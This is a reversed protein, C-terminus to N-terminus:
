ARKRPTLHGYEVGLVEYEKSLFKSREIEKQKNAGKQVSFKSPPTNCIRPESRWPKHIYWCNKIAKLCKSMQQKIGRKNKIVAICFLTTRSLCLSFCYAKSGYKEPMISPKKIRNRIASAINYLAIAAYLCKEIRTLKRKNISELCLNVKLHRFAVEVLYRQRYLEILKRWPFRSEDLLTTILIQSKLKSTGKTRILRVTLEHGLLYQHDPYNKLHARTLKVKYIASRAKSARMKNVLQNMKLPMLIEHGLETTVAIFAMGNYGADNLYLTPSKNERMHECAMSREPTDKHAIKFDEFTRTSLEYFGVALCQPYHGDAKEYKEIVEDSNPLSIKTGDTIIIKLDKFQLGNDSFEEEHSIAVIDKMVQVPLKDCAKVFGKVTPLKASHGPLIDLENLQALL